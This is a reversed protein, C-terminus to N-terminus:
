SRHAATIIKMAEDRLTNAIDRYSAAIVTDREKEEREAPTPKPIDAGLKRLLADTSDSDPDPAFIDAALFYRKLLADLRAPPNRDHLCERALMGAVVKSLIITEGRASEIRFELNKDNEFLTNVREKTKTLLDALKSVGDLAMDLERRLQAASTHDMPSGEM